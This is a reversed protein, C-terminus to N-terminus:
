GGRPRQRPPHPEGGGGHAGQGALPLNALRTFPSPHPSPQQLSPASFVFRPSPSGRRGAGGGTASQCAAAIKVQQLRDPKLPKWVTACHLFLRDRDEGPCGEVEASMERLAASVEPSCSTVAEIEAASSGHSRGDEQPAPGEDWYNTWAYSHVALNTRRTPLAPAIM